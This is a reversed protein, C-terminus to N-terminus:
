QGIEHLFLGSLLKPEFWTSKPPMLRGADAVAILERISTPYMTFAAGKCADARRELEDLGRIGGVFEIAPDTRPDEIHFMPKLVNDQLIQVDLGRVPDSSKISNRATLTYWSGGLYLGIDGKQLPVVPTKGCPIASFNKKILPLVEAKDLGKMDKVVRNYPLIELQNEPFLVALFYNFPEEGTYDPHEKRRKLGVKVASACRHHGDAIYLRKVARLADQLAKVEDPDSIVWLRNHVLRNTSIEQGDIRLTGDPLLNMASEAKSNKQEEEARAIHQEEEVNLGSRIAETVQNPAYVGESDNYFDAYPARESKVSDTLEDITNQHIYTLFIPGTQTGTVDVHTIRDQEKAAVTNEHRRITGNLYADISACAVIGTQTRGRFTQEYLYFSPAPDRVFTGNGIREQLMECAKEYVQSSYTGVSEPFQTEARDIALFSQPNRQVYATAEARNYVDYPLAAITSELGSRPRIAAFPTIVPHQTLTQNETQTQLQSQIKAKVFVTLKNM